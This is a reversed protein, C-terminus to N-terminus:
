LFFHLLKKLATVVVSFNVESLSVENLLEMFSLARFKTEPRKRKEDDPLSVSM